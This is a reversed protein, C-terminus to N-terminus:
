AAQTEIKKKFDEWSVTDGNAMKCIDKFQCYQCQWDRPYGELRAPIANTEVQDKLAYFKYLLSKCLAEDYDIFFEKIDQRDKDVYLLIGKKIGFYHLYLQIQYVNDEKPERLNRFIMSNISKIDLVYNENNMCLIADARGSVIEQSPIPIETTCGIKLRYLINFINRHIHEGHEFIRMLRADIAQRPANKFRFFVARPCKGADTIYFKTQERNKQNELYFQDILEKLM